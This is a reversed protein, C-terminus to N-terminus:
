PYGNLLRAPGDLKCFHISYRDVVEPHAEPYRAQITATIEDRYAPNALGICSGRFGGGSFRAGYVGPCERLINYLTILQPCGSEYNQVSSAGSENILRGVQYLDGAQWAVVGDRVRQNETFFHRARRDLPPPLRDAFGDYVEDSVMRLRPAESVPQDAWELLM